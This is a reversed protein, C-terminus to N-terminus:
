YEGEPIHTEPNYGYIPGNKEICLKEYPGVKVRYFEQQAGALAGMVDNCTQYRQPKASLYESIALAIIYQLEGATEVGTARLEKELGKFTNRDEQTIYPM